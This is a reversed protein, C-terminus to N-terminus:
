KILQMKRIASYKGAKIRYFYIGSALNAGNFMFEHVGPGLESKVIEMVESGFLDYIKLEVNEAEPLAFKIRTVPNFPNPYNQSLNFHYETIEDASVISGTTFKRVQSWMGRGYENVTYSRWFYDTNIELPGVTAATDVSFGELIITSDEMFYSKGIQYYHGDILNNRYWKLTPYTPLNQLFPTPYAPQSLHTFNNYVSRYIKDDNSSYFGNGADDIFFQPPILTATGINYHFWTEGKNTSKSLIPYVGNNHAYINNKLDVIVKNTRVTSPTTWSSGGDTSRRLFGGELTYIEDDANIDIEYNAFFNGTQISVWSSGRNSSKYVSNDTVILLLGKSSAKINSVSQSTFLPDWSTGNDTSRYVGAAGTAYILQSRDDSNKYSIIKITNRTSVKDWEDPSVMKFVGSAAGAFLTDNVKIISNIRYLTTPRGVYEWTDGSNSTKYIHGSSFGAYLYNEIKNFATVNGAVPSSILEWEQSPLNIQTFLIIIFLIKYGL